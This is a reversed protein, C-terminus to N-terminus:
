NGSVVGGGSNGLNPTGNGPFPTPPGQRKGKDHGLAKGAAEEPLDTKVETVSVQVEGSPLETVAVAVELSEGVSIDDITQEVGPKGNAPAKQIKTKKDLQLVYTKGNVDLTVSRSKKDVAVVKGTLRQQTTKAAPSSAPPQEARAGPATGVALGALIAVLASKLISKNM